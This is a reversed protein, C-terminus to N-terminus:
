DAKYSFAGKEKPVAAEGTGASLWRQKPRCEKRKEYHERAESIRQRADGSHGSHKASVGM